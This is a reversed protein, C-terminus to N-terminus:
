KLASLADVRAARRAPVVCAVLAVAGLLLIAFTLVMPDMPEVGFLQTAIVSRLLFSGGVGLGLGLGLVILGESLVLKFLQPQTSGVAIRIGFERATHLNGGKHWPEVTRAVVVSGTPVSRANSSRNSWFSIAGYVALGGAVVAVVLVKGIPSSPSPLPEGCSQCVPAGNPVDGYCTPCTTM